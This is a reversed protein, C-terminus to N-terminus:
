GVVLRAAVRDVLSAHCQCGAECRKRGAWEVRGMYLGGRAIRVSASTVHQAGYGRQAAQGVASPLTRRGESLTAAKPQIRARRQGQTPRKSIRASEVIAESHMNRHATVAEDLRDRWYASNDTVHDSLRATLPCFSDTRFAAKLGNDAM